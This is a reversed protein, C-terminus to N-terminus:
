VGPSLTPAPPPSEAPPAPEGPMRAGAPAVALAALVLGLAVLADLWYHNATLVIAALTIVPHAVAVWRWRTRLGRVFGYAVLVAWGFHLSPMAAYQNAVSAVEAREYIAPGYRAITDVYGGLMRPPALPYALHIVLAVGTVSVFLYRVHAVMRPTRVYTVVLFAMTAPFHVSAYYRNLGRIFGPHGLAARQWGLETDIGMWREAGLVDRANALARAAEDRGLTRGLRYLALLVVIVAVERLLRAGYRSHWLRAPLSRDDVGVGRSPGLPHSL